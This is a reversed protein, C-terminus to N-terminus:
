TTSIIIETENKLDSKRTDMGLKEKISINQHKAYMSTM